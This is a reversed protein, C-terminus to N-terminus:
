NASARFYSQAGCELGPDFSGTNKVKLFGVSVIFLISYELSCLFICNLLETRRTSVLSGLELVKAIVPLYPFPLTTKGGHYVRCLYIGPSSTPFFLGILLHLVSCFVPFYCNLQPVSNLTSM